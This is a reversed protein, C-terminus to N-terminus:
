PLPIARRSLACNFWKQLRWFDGVKWYGSELRTEIWDKFDSHMRTDLGVAFTKSHM